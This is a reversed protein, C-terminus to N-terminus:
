CKRMKKMVLYHEALMLLWCIALVTIESKIELWGSLITQKDLLCTKKNKKLVINRCIYCNMKEQAWKRKAKPERNKTNNKFVIQIVLVKNPPQKIPM